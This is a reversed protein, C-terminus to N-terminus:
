PILDSVEVLPRRPAEICVIVEAPLAHVIDLVPLEGTAPVMREHLAEDLYSSHRSNLPVYCIHVYGIVKPDPAAIDAAGSGSRVFHMTDILLRFNARGVHRVAALAAPLRGITDSPSDGRDAGVRCAGSYNIVNHCTM